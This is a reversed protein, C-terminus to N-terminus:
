AIKLQLGIVTVVLGGIGMSVAWRLRNGALAKGLLWGLVALAVIALALITWPPVPLLAGVLLPATAGVFSAVSAVAMAVLARRMQIRGLETTALQGRKTLNLQRSARILSRRRDAYDAVFMTFAATVLAAIGIRLALGPSVGGGQGLISSSALALSNLLGDTLGMVPPLLPQRRLWSFNM